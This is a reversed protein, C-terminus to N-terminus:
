KSSTDGICFLHKDSRIFIQGNSLAPSAVIREGLDNEALLEFEPGARIVRIIGEHAPIYVRGAGAVPSAYFQDGLREKWHQKGTKADLCVVTGCDM